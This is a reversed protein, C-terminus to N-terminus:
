EKNVVSLYSILYQISSGSSLKQRNLTECTRKHECSSWRPERTEEWGEFVHCYTSQCHLIAGRTVRSFISLFLPLAFEPCKFNFSYNCSTKFGTSFLWMIEMHIKCPQYKSMDCEQKRYKWVHNNFFVVKHKYM